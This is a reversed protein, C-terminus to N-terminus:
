HHKHSFIARCVLVLYPITLIGISIILDLKRRRSQNWVAEYKDFIELDRGKVIFIHHSLMATLTYVSGAFIASEARSSFWSHKVIHLYVSELLLLWGASGLSFLYMAQIRASFHRSHSIRYFYHYINFYLYDIHKM